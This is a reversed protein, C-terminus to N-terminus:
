LIAEIREQDVTAVKGPGMGFKIEGAIENIWANIHRSTTTSWKKATKYIQGTKNDRYAVPTEYSFLVDLDDLYVVTANTKAIQKLKMIIERAKSTLM